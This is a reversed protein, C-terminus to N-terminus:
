CLVQESWHGENKGYIHWTKSNKSYYDKDTRSTEIGKIKIKIITEYEKIVPIANDFKSINREMETLNEDDIDEDKILSANLETKVKDKNKSKKKKKEENNEANLIYLCYEYSYYKTWLLDAKLCQCVVIKEFVSQWLKKWFLRAVLFILM